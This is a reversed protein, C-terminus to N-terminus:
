RWARERRRADALHRFTEDATAKNLLLKELLPPKGFVRRAFFDLVRADLPQELAGGLIREPLEAATKFAASKM